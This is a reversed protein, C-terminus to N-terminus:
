FFQFVLYPSKGRLFSVAFRLVVKRGFEGGKWVLEM